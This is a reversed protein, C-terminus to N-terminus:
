QDDTDETAIVLLAGGLGLSDILERVAAQVDGETPLRTAMQFDLRVNVTYTKM